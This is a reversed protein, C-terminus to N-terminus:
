RDLANAASDDGELRIHGKWIDWNIDRNVQIADGKYRRVHGGQTLTRVAEAYERLVPFAHYLLFAKRREGKEGPGGSANAHADPNLVVIRAEPNHPIDKITHWNENM